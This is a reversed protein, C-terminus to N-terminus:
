AALRRAGGLYAALHASLDAADPGVGDIFSSKRRRMFRLGLVYLGPRPVIGGDHRIEGDGDLVPVKLWSYDRRYGTAWVVTRIGAASLDIADPGRTFSQSAPREPPGVQRDLRNRVIHEDIRDLVRTM